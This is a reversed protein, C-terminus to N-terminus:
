PAEYPQRREINEIGICRGESDRVRREFTICLTTYETSEFCVTADSVRDRLPVLHKLSGGQGFSEGHSLSALNLDEIGEELLICERGIQSLLIPEWLGERGAQRLLLLAKRRVEPHRCKLVVWFLAPVLSSELSFYKLTMDERPLMMSALGTITMFEQLYSDFETEEIESYSTPITVSLWAYQTLMQASHQKWASDSKEVERSGMWFLDYAKRWKKLNLYLHDRRFNSTPNQLTHCRGATHGLFQLCENALILLYQHAEEISRFNLPLVWPLPAEPSLTPTAKHASLKLMPRESGFHTYQLDLDAFISFLEDEVSQPQSALIFTKTRIRSSESISTAFCTSSYLLKRGENLHMMARDFHGTVLEIAIFILCTTLAVTPTNHHGTIDRKLYQIATNYDKLVDLMPISTDGIQKSKSQSTRCCRSARTLALSAHLIAPESYCAPLVVKNWFGYSRVGAIEHVTQSRFLEFVRFQSNSLNPFSLLTLAPKPQINSWYQGGNNSNNSPLSKFTIHKPLAILIGYGDCKRGTSVCRLCCPKSEDCKM